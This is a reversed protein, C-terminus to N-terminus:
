DHSPICTMKQIFASSERQKKDSYEDIVKKYKNEQKQWLHFIYINWFEVFLLQKVAYL